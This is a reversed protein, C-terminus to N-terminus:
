EFFSDITKEEKNELQKVDESEIKEEQPEIESKEELKKNKKKFSFLPKRKEEKKEEKVEELASQEDVPKPIQHEKPDVIKRFGAFLYYATLLLLIFLITWAIYSDKLWVLVVVGFSLIAIGFITKSLKSEENFKGVLILM